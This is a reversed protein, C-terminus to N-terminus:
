KEDFTHFWHPIACNFRISDSPGLQFAREGIHAELHGNLVLECEEGPHAFPKDQNSFDPPLEIYLMSLRGQLDPVLLEYVLNHDSLVLRKRAHPRVVMDSEGLAGGFFSGLPVDLASALGVLSNLSPNGIGREIQSLFGTSVGARQALQEISLRRATRERAIREGIADVMGNPRDNAQGTLRRVRGRSREPVLAM